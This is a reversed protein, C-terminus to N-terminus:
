AAEPPIVDRQRHVAELLGELLHDLRLEAVIFAAIFLRTGIVARPEPTEGPGEKKRRSLLLWPRRSASRAGACRVRIRKVSRARASISRAISLTFPASCRRRYSHSFFCAFSVGRELKSTTGTPILRMAANCLGSRHEPPAPHDELSVLFPAVTGDNPMPLNLLFEGLPHLHTWPAM